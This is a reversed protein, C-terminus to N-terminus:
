TSSEKFVLRKSMGLNFKGWLSTKMADIRDSNPDLWFDHFLNSQISNHM